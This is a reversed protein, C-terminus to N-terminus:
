GPIVPPALKRLEDRLAMVRLAHERGDDDSEDAVEREMHWKEFALRVLRQHRQRVIWWASVQFTLLLYLQYLTRNRAPVLRVLDGPLLVPPAESALYHRIIHNEHGISVATTVLVIVVFPMQLFVVAVPLWLIGGDGSVFLGHLTNWSFHAFMAFGLALPPILWRVVGSRLVRFAGIGAGTLATFATHTGLSAVFGRVVTLALVGGVSGTDCYYSWNEFTAFGLGIWAGYVVGDLVNDFHKSFFVYIATLALGKSLEEIFPASLSASLQSALAEDGTLQTAGGQFTTNVIGSVATAMVAGWGVASLALPLPEPDNRDMWRIVFFYPIGLMLTTFAAVIAVIPQTILRFLVEFGTCMATFAAGSVVLLLCSGLVALRSVSTAPPKRGALRVTRPAENASWSGPETM